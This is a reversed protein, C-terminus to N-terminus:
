VTVEMKLFEDILDLAVSADDFIVARRAEEQKEKFQLRVHEVRLRNREVEALYEEQAEFTIVQELRDGYRFFGLVKPCRSSVLEYAEGRITFNGTVLADLWQQPTPPTPRPLAQKYESLRQNTIQALRDFFHKKQMANLKAM